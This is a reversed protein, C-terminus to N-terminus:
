AIEGDMAGSMKTIDYEFTTQSLMEYVKRNMYFVCKSPSVSTLYVARRMLDELPDVAAAKVAAVGVVPLAAALKFFHRRNM